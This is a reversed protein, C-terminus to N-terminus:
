SERRGLRVDVQRETGDDDVVLLQVETDPDVRRIADVLAAAGDVTRGDVAVILEDPELGARFAPSGPEVATLLAGRSGDTPDAVTVGLYARTASGADSSGGQRLQDVVEAARDVGIAFGINEVAQGAGSTAVATNVGIVQGRGNVLPGGSNGSSISADTQVLGTMTGSATDLSRDLASVIGWTVSPGGRLALSNGIAIVDDGVQVADLAGLEAPVLGGAGDVRLLALDNARDIGVLEADRSRAEGTITVRITTAGDVVHANTLVEGDATLVIGSGAGTAASGFRGPLETQIAVVSPGVAEVLAPVDLTTTGTAAVPAGDDGAALRATLSGAVGGAALALVVLLAILRGRAGPPAPVEPPDRDDGDSGPAPPDLHPPLLLTPREDM